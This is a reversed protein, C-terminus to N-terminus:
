VIIYHSDKFEFHNTVEFNEISRVTLLSVHTHPKLNQAVFWVVCDVIDIEFCKRMVEWISYKPKM